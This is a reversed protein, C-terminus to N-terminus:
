VRESSPGREEGGEEETGEGAAAWREEAEEAKASALAWPWGKRMPLRERMFSTIPNSKELILNLNNQDKQNIIEKLKLPLEIQSIQTPTEPPVAEPLVVTQSIIM